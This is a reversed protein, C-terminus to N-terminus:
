PCCTDALSEARWTRVGEAGALGAIALGAIPDAWWWGLGANVGLGVLLVASLLACLDTQKADAAVAASGLTPALQRKARALVPMTALSMAAIVIGVISEEPRARVVLDRTAEVAVYVALLGFGVAILRTARHDSEQMCGGRGERLLRWTVVLAASVEIVSDFGFGVLSISGAAAGAVLAVVGEVTNWGITAANLWRGRRLAQERDM